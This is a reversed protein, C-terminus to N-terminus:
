WPWPTGPAAESAAGEAPAAVVADLLSEEPAALVAGPGLLVAPPPVTAGTEVPAGLMSIPMKM